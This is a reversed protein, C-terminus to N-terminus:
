LIQLTKLRRNKNKAIGNWQLTYPVMLKEFRNDVYESGNDIELVKILKGSKKLLIRSAKFNKSSKIIAHLFTSGHTNLSTM